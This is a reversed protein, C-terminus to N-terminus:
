KLVKDMISIHELVEDITEIMSDFGYRSKFCLVIITGEANMDMSLGRPFNINDPILAKMVPKVKKINNLDLRVTVRLQQSM